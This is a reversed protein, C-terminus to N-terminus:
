TGIKCTNTGQHKSGGYLWEYKNQIYFNKDSEKEEREIDREIKNEEREKEINAIKRIDNIWKWACNRKTLFRTNSFVVRAFKLQETLFDKIVWKKAGRFVYVRVLYLRVGRLDSREFLSM